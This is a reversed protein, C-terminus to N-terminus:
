ISSQGRRSWTVSDERRGSRRASLLILVAISDLGYLRKDGTMNQIAIANARRM